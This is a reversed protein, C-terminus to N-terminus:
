HTVVGTEYVKFGKRRLWRILEREAVRWEPKQDAPAINRAVMKDRSPAGVSRGEYHLYNTRIQNSSVVLIVSLQDITYFFPRVPLGIAEPNAPLESRGRRASTM